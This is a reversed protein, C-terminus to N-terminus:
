NRDGLGAQQEVEHKNREDSVERPASLGELVLALAQHLMGGQYSFFMNM